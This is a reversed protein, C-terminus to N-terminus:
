RAEDPLSRSLYLRVIHVESNIEEQASNQLAQGAGPQELGPCAIEGIRNVMQTLNVIIAMRHLGFGCNGEWPPNVSATRGM